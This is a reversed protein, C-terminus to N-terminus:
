NYHISDALCLKLHFNCNLFKATHNFPVMKNHLVVKSIGARTAHTPCSQVLRVNVDKNQTSSKLLVIISTVVISM